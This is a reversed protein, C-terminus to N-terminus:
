AILSQYFVNLVLALSVSLSNFSGILLLDFEDLAIFAGFIRDIEHHRPRGEGITAVLIPILSQIFIELIQCIANSHILYLFVQFVQLLLGFQIWIEFKIVSWHDIRSQNFNELILLIHYLFIAIDIIISDNDFTNRQTRLEVWIESIRM